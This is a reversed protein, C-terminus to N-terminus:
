HGSMAGWRFGVLLQVTSKKREEGVILNTREKYLGKGGGMDGIKKQFYDNLNKVWRKKKKGALPVNKEDKEKKGWNVM